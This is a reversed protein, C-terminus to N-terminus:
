ALYNLHYENLQEKEKREWDTTKLLRLRDDIAFYTNGDRDTQIYPAIYEKWQRVGNPGMIELFETNGRAYLYIDKIRDPILDTFIKDFDITEEAELFVVRYYGSHLGRIVFDSRKM